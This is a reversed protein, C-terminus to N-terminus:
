PYPDKPGFFRTNGAGVQKYTAHNVDRHDVQGTLERGGLGHRYSFEVEKKYETLFTGEESFIDQFHPNNYIASLLGLVVM